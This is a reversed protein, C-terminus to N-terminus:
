VDFKVHSFLLVEHESLVGCFFLGFIALRQHINSRRIGLILNWSLMRFFCFLYKMVYVFLVIVNSALFQGRHLDCWIFHTNDTFIMKQCLMVVCLCM